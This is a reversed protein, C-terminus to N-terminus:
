EILSSWGSAVFSDEVSKFSDGLDATGFLGTWEIPGVM